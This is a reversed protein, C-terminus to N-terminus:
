NPLQRRGVPPFHLFPRWQAEPLQLRLFRLHRAQSAPCTAQPPLHSRPQGPEVLGTLQRQQKAPVQATFVPVKQQEPEQLLLWHVPQVGSPFWHLLFWSQQLVTQVFPPLHAQALV